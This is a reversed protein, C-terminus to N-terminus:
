GHSREASKLAAVIDAVAVEGGEEEANVRVVRMPPHLSQKIRAMVEIMETIIEVDARVSKRTFHDNPRNRASRRAFATQASVEVVIVVDPPKIRRFLMDALQDMELGRSNRYLSIIKHFLGECTIQIGGAQECLERRISYSAIVAFARKARFLTIPRTMVSLYVARTALFLNRPAAKHIQILDFNQAALGEDKLTGRVRESLFTKGAGAAGIFEVLM